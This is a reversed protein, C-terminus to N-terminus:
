PTSSSAQGPFGHCADRAVILIPDTAQPTAATEILSLQWGNAALDVFKNGLKMRPTNLIASVVLRHRQDLQSSGREAQDNGNYVTNPPDTFNINASANGQNLDIAHSWTYALTGTAWRSARQLIKNAALYASTTCSSTTGDLKVINYTASGTAPGLNLDERSIFKYGRSRMYSVTMAGNKGVAQEMTFDGQETYPTALNIAACTVNTLGVAGALSSLRAPFVPGAALQAANSANLTGTKQIVGNRQQLRIVSASPLRAYFIGFGARVVTKGHNFSCAAGLRPAFNLGPQNLVATQRGGRRPTTSPIRPWRNKIRGCRCRM